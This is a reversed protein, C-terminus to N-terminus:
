TTPLPSLTPFLFYRALCASTEEALTIAYSPFLFYSTPLSYHTIPLVGSEQSRVGSEQSRYPREM